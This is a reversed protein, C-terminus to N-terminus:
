KTSIVLPELTYWLGASAGDVEVEAQQNFCKYDM